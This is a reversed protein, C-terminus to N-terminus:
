EDDELMGFPNSSEIKPPKKDEGETVPTPRIGKKGKKKGSGAVVKMDGSTGNLAQDDGGASDVGKKDGSAGGSDSIGSASTGSGRGAKKLVEERPRANGFISSRTQASAGGKKVEHRPALKLKPRNAVSKEYEAGEYCALDPPTFNTPTAITGVTTTPDEAAAEAATTAIVVVTTGAAMTAVTVIVAMTGAEAVAVTAGAVSTVVATMTAITMVGTEVATATAVAVVDITAMTARAAATTGGGITTTAAAAVAAVTTGAEAVAARTTGAVEAVAARITKRAGPRNRRNPPRSRSVSSAVKSGLLRPKRHRVTSPRRRPSRSRPLTIRRLSLEFKLNM